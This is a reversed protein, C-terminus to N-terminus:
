GGSLGGLHARKLTLLERYFHEVGQATRSWSYTRAVRAAAVSMRLALSPSLLLSRVADAIAKGDNPEVIRGNEGDAIVDRMAGASTGVVCMGRAMAELFVKNFGEFLSPCFFIGHNDFLCSLEQQSVWSRLSVRDRVHVPELGGAMARECCVAEIAPTGGVM